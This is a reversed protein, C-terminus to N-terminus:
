ANIAEGELLVPVQMGNASPAPQEDLVQLLAIIELRAAPHARAIRLLGDQLASFQPSTTLNITNNTVNIGSLVRLEGTVKGLERLSELLRGALNALQPKDDAEAATIFKNFLISRVISLQELLSKSEDAAASALEEVKAPGAMLECKRAASVHSKFHRFVSDRSVGFKEAVADLSAGGVRALEIRARDPHACIACQAPRIPRSVRSM